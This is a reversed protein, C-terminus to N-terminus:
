PLKGSHLKSLALTKRHRNGVGEKLRSPDFIDGRQSLRFTPIMPECLPSSDKRRNTDRGGGGVGKSEFLRSLRVAQLNWSVFGGSVLNSGVNIAHLPRM